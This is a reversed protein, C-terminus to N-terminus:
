GHWTRSCTGRATDRSAAIPECAPDLMTCVDRPAAAHFERGWMPSDVWVGHNRLRMNSQETRRVRPVLAAWKARDRLFGAM